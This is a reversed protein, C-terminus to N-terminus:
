RSFLNMLGLLFAPAGLSSLVLTLFHNTKEHAVMAVSAFWVILLVIVSAGLELDLNTTSLTRIDQVVQPILILGSFPISYGIMKRKSFVDGSCDVNGCFRTSHENRM